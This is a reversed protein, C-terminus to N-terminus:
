WKAAERIARDNRDNASEGKIQDVFTDKHHENVFVYFHKDTNAISDKLRKLTPGSRHRVEQLM